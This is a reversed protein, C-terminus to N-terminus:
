QNVLSNYVRLVKQANKRSDFNKLALKYAADGMQKRVRKNVALYEIADALQAANGPDICIGTKGNVITDDSPDNIAVISPVKFFAAEFVPRGVANIHSPFCLIDINKYVHNLDPIFEIMNFHDKIGYRSVLRSIDSEIDWTFGLKRLFFNMVANFRHPGRGIILFNIDLGKRVCIRAAEVFEYVGKIKLLNSVMGVTISCKSRTLIQNHKIRSDFNVSFGNHIVSVPLDNPVTEKVTNDIAIIMSCCKKLITRILGSRLSKEKLRQLSRCHVIVPRSFFLKALIIPLILTIENIHVIDIKKWKIRAKIVAYLTYFSYYFERLLILWRVGHYYSLRTNDFQSIGRAEIVSSNESKFFDKVNGKQTIIHPKISNKPFAKIIELLSRSSGGYSGCHHIYLVSISM